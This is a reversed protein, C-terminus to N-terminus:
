GAWCAARTSYAKSRRPSRCPRSRTGIKRDDGAHPIESRGRGAFARRGTHPTSCPKPVAERTSAFMNWGLEIWSSMAKEWAVFPNDAAVPHRDARVARGDRHREDAPQPRDAGLADSRICRGAPITDTAATM